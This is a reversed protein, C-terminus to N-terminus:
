QSRGGPLARHSCSDTLSVSPTVLCECATVSVRSARSRVPSDSSTNQWHSYPRIAMSERACSHWRLSSRVCSGHTSRPPLSPCRLSRTCRAFGRAQALACRCPQSLQLRCHPPASLNHTHTHISPLTGEAPMREHPSSQFPLPANFRRAAMHTDFLESPGLHQQGGV